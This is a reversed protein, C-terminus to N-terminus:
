HKYAFIRAVSSASCPLHKIQAYYSENYRESPQILIPGLFYRSSPIIRMERNNDRQSRAKSHIIIDCVSHDISLYRTMENAVWYKPSNSDNM